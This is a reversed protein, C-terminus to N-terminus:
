SPRGRYGKLLACIVKPWALILAITALVVATRTVKLGRALRKERTDDIIGSGSLLAWAVSGAFLWWLAAVVLFDPSSAVLEM